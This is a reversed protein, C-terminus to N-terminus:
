KNKELLSNISEIDNVSVVGAATKLEIRALLHKYLSLFYRKRAKHYDEVADMLDIINRVGVEYGKKTADMSLKASEMAQEAAVTIAVSDRLSLFASRTAVKVQDTLSSLTQKRVEAAAEAQASRAGISGGLYLPMTIYLGATEQRDRVDPLFGGKLYGADAIFDLRPWRARRSIEVEDRSVQWQQKAQELVPQNDLASKVWLEMRVPEPEQPNFPIVDAITEVPQHILVELKRKAVSVQNGAQVLEATAADRRALSEQLDVLNGTGVDMAAKTKLFIKQFLAQNNAAVEAEAEAQLIDFYLRSVRRILDQDAWMLAAEGAKLRSKAARLSVYAQGDFVPQKLTISYENGWITKEITAPVAGTIRSHKRDVGAGIRVQPLLSSKALPEYTKSLELNARARALLPDSAVAQQYAALLDLGCVPQAWFSVATLLLLFGIIRGYRCRYM